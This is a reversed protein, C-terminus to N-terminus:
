KYIVLLKANVINVGTWSWSSLYWKNNSPNNSVMLPIVIQDCIASIMVIENANLADIYSTIDISAYNNNQVTFQPIEIIENKNFNKNLEMFCHKMDVLHM